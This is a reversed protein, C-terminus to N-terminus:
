YNLTGHFVKEEKFFFNSLFTNCKFAVTFGYDLYPEDMKGNYNGETTELHTHFLSLVIM